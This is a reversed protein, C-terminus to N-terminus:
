QRVLYRRLYSAADIFRGKTTQTTVADCRPLLTSFFLVVRLSSLDYVERLHLQLECLHEADGIPVAITLLLDKYGTIGPKDFRNKVRVIDLGRSLKAYLELVELETEAVISGRVVDLVRSADGGYKAKAKEACRSRPKLPEVVFMPNM